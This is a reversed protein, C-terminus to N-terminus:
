ARVDMLGLGTHGSNPHLFAKLQQMQNDGYIQLINQVEVRLRPQVMRSVEYTASKM